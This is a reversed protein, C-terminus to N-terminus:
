SFSKTLMPKLEQKAIDENQTLEYNLTIFSSKRRFPVYSTCFFTRINSCEVDFNYIKQGSGKLYPELDYHKQFSEKNKIIVEGSDVIKQESRDYLTYKCDAVCSFVNEISVEFDIPQKQNNKITFSADAPNLHIILDNQFVFSIRLGTIFLILSLTLLSIVAITIIKKWNRKINKEVKKLDKKIEKVPGKKM